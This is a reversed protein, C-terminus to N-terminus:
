GQSSPIREKFDRSFEDFVQETTRGFFWFLMELMMAFMRGFFVSVVVIAVTTSMM